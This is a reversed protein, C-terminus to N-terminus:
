FYNNVEIPIFGFNLKNRQLYIPSLNNQIINIIMTSNIIGEDPTISIIYNEKHSEPKIIINEKYNIIRNIINREGVSVEIKFKIKEKIYFSVIIPHDINVNEFEYILNIKKLINNFYLFVPEKEKIILQPIKSDNINISNIILPYIRNQKREYSKM